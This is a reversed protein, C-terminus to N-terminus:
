FTVDTRWSLSAVKQTKDSCCSNDSRLAYDCVSVLKRLYGDADAGEMFDPLQRMMGEAGM